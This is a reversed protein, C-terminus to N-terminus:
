SYTSVHPVRGAHALLPVAAALEELPLLLELEDARHQLPRCEALSAPQEDLARGAESLRGQEVGTRSHRSVTPHPHQPCPPEFELQFMRESRNPPKESGQLLHTSVQEASGGGESRRHERVAVASLAHRAEGRQVAQVPQDRADGSAPRDGQQNVVGVPQVLRGRPEDGEQKRPDLFQRRSQHHRPTRIPRPDVSGGVRLERPELREGLRGHCPQHGRREVPVIELMPLEPM